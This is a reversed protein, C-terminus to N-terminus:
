GIIGVVTDFLILLLPPTTGFWNAVLLYFSLQLLRYLLSLHQCILCKSKRTTPSTNKRKQETDIM